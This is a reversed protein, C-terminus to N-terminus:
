ELDENGGKVLRNKRILEEFDKKAGDSLESKAAEIKDILGDDLIDVFVDKAADDALSERMKKLTQIIHNIREKGIDSSIDVVIDNFDKRLSVPIKSLALSNAGRFLSIASDEHFDVVKGAKNSSGVGDLSQVNSLKQRSAYYEINGYNTGFSREKDRIQEGALNQGGFNNGVGYVARVGRGSPDAELETGVVGALIPAGDQSAHRLSTDLNRMARNYMNPRNFAERIKKDVKEEAGVEIKKGSFASLMARSLNEGSLAEKDLDWGAEGLMARLTAMGQESGGSMGKDLVAMNQRILSREEELLEPKEGQREIEQRVENLKRVGQQGTAVVESFNMGELTKKEQDGFEGLYSEIAQAEPHMGKRRYAAAKREAEAIGVEPRMKVIEAETEFITKESEQFRKAERDEGKLLEEKKALGKLKQKEAKKKEEMELKVRTELKFQGAPSSSTRYGAEMIKKENEIGERWDSARKDARGGTEMFGAAASGARRKLWGKVGKEGKGYGEMQKAIANRDKAGLVPARSYLQMARGKIAAGRRKLADGGIIPAKKLGLEVAGVVAKKGKAVGWRAIGQGTSLGSAVTAVRKGFNIASGAASGGVVGLKQVFMLGAIMFAMGIAFSSLNEWTAAKNIAVKPQKSVGIQSGLGGSAAFAAFQSTEVGIDQSIKGQGMTAFTLWLFFVMVPAVVVHHIFKTWFENAFKQAFPFAQAIFALPSVIMLVWLMVLRALMIALYAGVTAMTFAALILGFVGSLLVDWKIDGKFSANDKTLSLIEDLKFMKILNGASADKFASLYTITVVHASDIILQLILKSFNIFIAMLVVKVLSKKWEYKEIGLVTGFAIVLLAVIFFMNALDRMMVWGLLVPPANMYDSYEAVRMLLNLFFVALKLFLGAILLMIWSVFEILANVIGKAASSAASTLWDVPNYWAASAPEAFLFLGGAVLTVFLFMMMLKQYKKTKNLKQFIKKM